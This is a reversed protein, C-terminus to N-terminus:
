CGCAEVSQMAPLVSLPDSLGRAEHTTSSAQNFSGWRYLDYRQPQDIVPPSLFRM